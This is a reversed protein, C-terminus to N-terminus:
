VHKDGTCGDEARFVGLRSDGLQPRSDVVSDRLLALLLGFYLVHMM